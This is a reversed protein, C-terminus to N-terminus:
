VNRKLYRVVNEYYKNLLEAILVLKKKVLRPHVAAEQLVLAHRPHHLQHTRRGPPLHHAGAGPVQDGVDEEGDQWGGDGAQFEQMVFCM